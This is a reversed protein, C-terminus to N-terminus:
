DLGESGKHSGSPENEGNMGGVSDGSAMTGSFVEIRIAFIAGSSRMFPLMRTVFM